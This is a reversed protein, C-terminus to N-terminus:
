LVESEYALSSGRFKAYLLVASDADHKSVGARQANQAAVRGAEREPKGLALLRDFDALLDAHARKTIM